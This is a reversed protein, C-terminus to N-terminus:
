VVVVVVRALGSAVEPSARTRTELRVTRRASTVSAVAFPGSPAMGVTLYWNAGAGLSSPPDDCDLFSAILTYTRGGIHYGSPTSPNSGPHYTFIPPPAFSKKSSSRASSATASRSSHILDSPSSDTASLSWSTSTASMGSVLKRLTWLLAQTVVQLSSPSNCHSARPSPPTTVATVPQWPFAAPGASAIPRATALSTVDLSPAYTKSADPM